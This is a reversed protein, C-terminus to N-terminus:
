LATARKNEDRKIYIRSDVVWIGEKNGILPNLDMEEIEPCAIALASLQVLIGAFQMEDVPDQGRFGKLLKNGRLRGIMGLATQHTLPALESSVDKMVEVFIGGVGCFVMAGFKPERKLGAFLELGRLMPQILVGTVGPLRIMRRFERAVEEGSCVNLVVGGIDTKHVPGVVKMVVPYGIKESKAVAENEEKAYNEDIRPINAADLLKGVMEPPIFGENAEHMIKGTSERDVEPITIQASVPPSTSKIKVLARGLAVEDPFNIQGRSLFEAIEERANIVSPLVPFIPKTCTKMKSYLVDYVENVPFLGPSGFIVVMGDIEHFYRDCYDIIEGLQEATGTALFDIPNAVSSGPHLKELLEDKEPSEIVPVALGGESLTDTLMVAPGGAHTIIALNNGTMPKHMFVSAVTTLEERSYCRVIGAKRLLADVATDSSALAGTHSSAARSGAESTGAKIAAIRCGKRILSSAHKLLLDPRDINEIYLLKIRSSLDPDFTEDLHQLVEEVGVQASNGVSYVSSFSVGKSIGAEMIFVATAGSGSIFDCGRGDMGPVPTTFVGQYHQNMVGICNPGILSGGAEEVIAAIAKEREAGEQSEESFGASLIIFGKTGKQGALNRIIDECHKAAVALIAMEARPLDSINAYSRIGQVSKEKPNIVSLDGKYTGSLLNYLVKGGPKQLSNSGGVVVISKPNVLERALM